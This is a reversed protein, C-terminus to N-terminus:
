DKDAPKPLHQEMAWVAQNAKWWQQWGLSNRKVGDTLQALSSRVAAAETV